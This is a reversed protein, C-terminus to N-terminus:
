QACRESWPERDTVMAPSGTVIMGAITDLQPLAEDAYANVLLVRGRDIALGRMIWDEFDEGSARLAPLTQGTKVILLPKM